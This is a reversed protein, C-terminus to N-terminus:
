IKTFDLTNDYNINCNQYDSVRNEFFNTKNQLNIQVMFPLPNVIDEFVVPYELAKLIANAVFEIYKLIDKLLLGKINGVSFCEKAFTKEIHVADEFVAHVEKTTLPHQVNNRKFMAIGMETHLGEDRAILENSFTLGKMLGKRKFFFITSFSSSFYIGEIIVFALLRQNYKVVKSDMWRRVWDTKAKISPFNEVAQFLKEKKVPDRIINEIQASYTEAHINEIATQFVYFYDVELSNSPNNIFNTELNESVLNDSVAFFALIMEIIKQESKTLSEFDKRDTSFDIEEVVWFAALHTKYMKWVEKDKLPFTTWRKGSM